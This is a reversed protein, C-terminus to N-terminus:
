IAISGLARVNSPLKRNGSTYLRRYRRRDSRMAACGGFVRVLAYNIFRGVCLPANCFVCLANRDDVDNDDNDEDDDSVSGVLSKWISYEMPM